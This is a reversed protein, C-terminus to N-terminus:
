TGKSVLGPDRRALLEDVIYQDRGYIDRRFQVMGDEGMWATNYILHVSVSENLYVRRRLGSEVVEDITERSWDDKGALLYEAMELPREIRICGSSFTRENETFLQRNPTDHLYVAFPNDFLFKVRGLANEPGPDQRMRYPLASRAPVNAFDIEYRELEERSDKAFLRMGKDAKHWPDEILKPLYDTRAISEPVYWYPNLELVSFQSSLIPTRRYRRGVIIAMDMVEQGDEIVRLKFEPVNVMVYRRGLDTPLWRARELNAMIQQIRQEATVRMAAVTQRGIVADQELGHRAQFRVVAERLELDYLMSELDAGDFDGTAFLRRRVAPIRSSSQGPEIQKGTAVMPWGGSEALQRYRELAARSGAYMSNSPAAGELHVRLDPARFAAKLVARAYLSQPEVAGRHRVARSDQNLGKLDSVYQILTTSAKLDRLALERTGSVQRDRQSFAQLPKKPPLSELSYREANLGHEFANAFIAQLETLRAQGKEDAVWAPEFRRQTYFDVVSAWEADAGAESLLQSIQAAVAARSVTPTIPGLRAAGLSFPYAHSVSVISAIGVASALFAVLQKLNIRASIRM